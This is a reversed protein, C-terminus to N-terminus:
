AKDGEVPILVKVSFGNGALSSFEISGGAANVKERMGKLGHGETIKNCGTGNDIIYVRINDPTFKVIVDTKDSKGHRISNTIAERVVSFVTDCAFLHYPQENGMVSLEIGGGATKMNGILSNLQQTISVNAKKIGSVCDRVDDLLKESIELAEDVNKDAAKNNIRSLKLLTMVSILSHGVSDHLEQAIRTREKEVALNKEVINMKELKINASTLEKNKKSLENTFEYQATVDSFMFVNSIVKNRRKVAIKNASFYKNDTLCIVANNTSKSEYFNRFDSLSGALNKEICKMACAKDKYVCDDNLAFDKKMANNIYTVKGRNDTILVAESISSMLHKVTFSSISIFEYKYIALFVLLSSIAFSLTTYDYKHGLLNSISLLNILLPIVAALSILIIQPLKEKFAKINKILMLCIGVLLLAYNYFANVYFGIGGSTAELSFRSFFLHFAPNTIELIYLIMSPLFLLIKFAISETLSSKIYYLSFLVFMAGIFCVSIYGLNSFIIKVTLDLSFIDILHCTIWNIILIQCVSFCRAMKDSQSYQALVVTCVTMLILSIINLFLALLSSM